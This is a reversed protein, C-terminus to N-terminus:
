RAVVRTSFDYFTYSLTVRDVNAPLAKDIFFRVPMSREEGVGFHQPTFCFCETKHFWTAAQSPAISPVAQATTDHGTLNHASFHAEYLRGPHVQMTGQLPKFEWNGVAPLSALFEVTVVRSDAGQGGQGEGQGEGQGGDAAPAVARESLTKQDGIGTVTCLVRYLPVLAFGFAFSGAVFLWLSGHLRRNAVRGPKDAAPENM